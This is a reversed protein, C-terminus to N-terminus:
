NRSPYIGEMCIIYNLVQYPQMNNHSQNGGVASTAGANSSVNPIGTTYANVPQTRDDVVNAPLTNSAPTSTTGDATTAAITVTHAHSPMEQTTLTHMETGGVEGLNRPTRGSGAGAGIPTRGQLDPLGFTTQGNGGYYVGVLSFLATNQAIALIQGQCLAWGRPAFNGAFLLISAIYADM